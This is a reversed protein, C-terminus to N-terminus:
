LYADVGMAMWGGELRGLGAGHPRLTPRYGSVPLVRDPRRQREPMWLGVQVKGNSKKM